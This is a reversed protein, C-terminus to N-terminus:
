NNGAAGSLLLVEKHFHKSSSGSESLGMFDTVVFNLLNLAKDGERREFKRAENQELGEVPVYVKSRLSM